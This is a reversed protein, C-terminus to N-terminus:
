ISVSGGVCGADLGRQAVDMFFETVRMRVWKAPAPAYRGNLIPKRDADANYCACGLSAVSEREPPFAVVVQKRRGLM